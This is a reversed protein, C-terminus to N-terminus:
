RITGDENKCWDGQATWDAADNEIAGIYSAAAFWPDLMTPDMAETPTSGEWQTTAVSGVATDFIKNAAIAQIDVAQDDFDTDNGWSHGNQVILNNASLDVDEIKLADGAFDTLLFNHFRGIAGQRIRLGRNNFNQAAKEEGPGLLTINSLMPNTRPENLADDPDNRADIGRADDIEINEPAQTVWFQGKGRWGHRFNIAHSLCSVSVLHSANVTGGYIRIGEGSSYIVQVHDLQTGSGVAYLTLANEVGFVRQGAYEIRVYSLTGSNDLDNTGGFLSVGGFGINTGVNTQADGLVVLGAWDGRSPTGTLVAESTLVIPAVSTGQAEIRAGRAIVLNAGRKVYIITGEAISLTVGEEVVAQATLYFPKDDALMTDRDFIVNTAGGVPLISLVDQGGLLSEEISFKSDDSSITTITFTITSTARDQIDTGTLTFVLSTGIDLGSPVIYELTYVERFADMYDIVAFANGDLVVSLQKLGASGALIFEQKVTDGEAATTSFVDGASVITPPPAEFGEEECSIISCLLIILIAFQNFIKM